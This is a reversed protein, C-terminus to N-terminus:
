ATVANAVYELVKAKPLTFYFTTGMDVESEIWIRGGYTEVIRTCFSLGIGTGEYESQGHLRRFMAFVEKQHLAPIGIGNDKVSYVVEGVENKEANIEIVPHGSKNYKIGNGILNQFLHTMLSVHSKVVPLNEYNIEAGKEQILNQLNMSAMFVSKNLDVPNPDGLNKDIKSYNLLDEILRASQAANSKIYNFYERDTDDFKTQNRREFLQSFSLIGRIPAKLDHSAIHAFETLERNSKELQHAYDQLKEESENVKSLAFQLASDHGQMTEELMKNRENILRKNEELAQIMRAQNSESQTNMLSFRHAIAFSLFMSELAVGLHLSYVTFVNHPMVGRNELIFIVISVSLSFWGIMCYLTYPVGRLWMKYGMIFILSIVLPSSFYAMYISLEWFGCFTVFINFGYYVYFLQIYKYYHPLNEKINLFKVVFFLGFLGAFAQLMMPYDNLFPTNRMFIEALYGKYWLLFGINCISYGSYILYLYEKFKAYIFINYLFFALVFGIFIGELVDERHNTRLLSKNTGVRLEVNCAWKVKVSLLYVNPTASPEIGFTLKNLDLTRTRFSFYQGTQQLQTMLGNDVVYLTATDIAPFLSELYITEKTKNHLIFKIWIKEANNGGLLLHESSSPTFGVNNMIDQVLPTKEDVPRTYCKDGIMLLTDNSEITITNQTFINSFPLLFLFILLTYRMRLINKVIM